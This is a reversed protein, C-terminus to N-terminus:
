LWKISLLGVIQLYCSRKVYILCSLLIFQYTKVYLFTYTFCHQVILQSLKISHSLFFSVQISSMGDVISNGEMTSMGTRMTAELAEPGTYNPDQYRLFEEDQLKRYSLNLPLTINSHYKNLSKWM